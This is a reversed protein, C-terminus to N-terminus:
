EEYQFQQQEKEAQLAAQRKHCESLPGQTFQAPIRTVWM